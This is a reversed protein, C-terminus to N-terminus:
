AEFLHATQFVENSFHRSGDDDKLRVARKLVLDFLLPNVEAIENCLRRERSGLLGALQLKETSYLVTLAAIPYDSGNVLRRHLEPSSLLERLVRTERNLMTIASIDGYLNKEYREDRILRMFLDFADADDRQREPRDLDPYSGLSACHAVVLRVGHDLPRRLLLPNGFDHAHGSDVALESGSHCILPLRLEAMREFFPDCLPSSPDIGMANPLWKVARAGGAVASDLRQVADPRYPHISACYILEDHEAALRQVYDNPTHFASLEPHEVGNEDVHHDFAMALLRGEPVAERHLRLLRSVYDADATAEDAMGVAAVYMEYQFRKVPHLHSQMEPNITCGTGGAGLGVIHVHTDWIKRRDLGALFSDAFERAEDGLPRPKGPRIWRPLGLRIAALGAVGAVAGGALWKLVRRRNWNGM